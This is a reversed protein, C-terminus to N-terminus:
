VLYARVLGREGLLVFWDKGGGALQNTKGRM